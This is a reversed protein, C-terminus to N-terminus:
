ICEIHAGRQSIASTWSISGNGGFGGLSTEHSTGSQPTSAGECNQYHRQFHHSTFRTRSSVGCSSIVCQWTQHGPTIFDESLKYGSQIIRIQVWNHSVCCRNAAVSLDWSCSFTSNYHTAYLYDKKIYKKVSGSPKGCLSFCAAIICYLCLQPQCNKNGWQQCRFNQRGSSCYCDKWVALM